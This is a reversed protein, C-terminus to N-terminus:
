WRVRRGVCSQRIAIELLLALVSARLVARRNIEWASNRRADSLFRHGLYGALFCCCSKKALRCPQFDFTSSGTRAFLQQQTEAIQFIQSWPQGTLLVNWRAFVTATSRRAWRPQCPQTSVSQSCCSSWVSNDSTSVQLTSLHQFKTYWHQLGYNLHWSCDIVSKVWTSVQLNEWISVMTSVQHIM